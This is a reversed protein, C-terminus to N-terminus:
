YRWEGDDRSQYMDCIGCYITGDVDCKPNPHSCLREEVEPDVTECKAKCPTQQLLQQREFMLLLKDVLSLVADDESRGLATCVEYILDDKTPIMIMQKKFEIVALLGQENYAMQM